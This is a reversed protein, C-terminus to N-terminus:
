WITRTCRPSIQLTIIAVTVIGSLSLLCSPPSGTPLSPLCSLQVLSTPVTTPGLQVASFHEVMECLTWKFLILTFTSKRINQSTYAIYLVPPNNLHLLLFPQVPERSFPFPSYPSPVDTFEPLEVTLICKLLMFETIFPQFPQWIAAM